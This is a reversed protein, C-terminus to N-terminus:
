GIRLMARQDNWGLPIETSLLDVLKLGAPHRSELIARQINPALFALSTLNQIYPDAVGRAHEASAKGDMMDIGCKHLEAHARRLVAILTKDPRSRSPSAYGDMQTTRGGRTIIRVPSTIRLNGNALISCQEPADVAWEEHPPPTLEAVIASCHAEIRGIFPTLDSWGANPRNTWCRLRGMVIDEIGSAPVRRLVRSADPHSAPVPSIDYLYRKGGRGRAHTAAM